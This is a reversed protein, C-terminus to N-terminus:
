ARDAKNLVAGLLPCGSKKLQNAADQVDAPGAAGAEVVLVAGDCLAAAEAGDMSAALSPADLLLWGGSKRHEKLWAALTREKVRQYLEAGGLIEAQEGAEALEEGLRAVVASTGDQKTAGAFLVAAPQKAAFGLNVRLRRFAQDAAKRDKEGRTLPIVSLTEIGLRERLERASRVSDNALYILLIVFVALAGGAIGGLLLRKKSIGGSASAISASDATKAVNLGLLSNIKDAAADRVADAIALAEEADSSTVTITVVRRMYESRTVKVSSLLEKADPADEGYVESLAASATEMVDSSLIMEAIDYALETGADFDNETYGGQFIGLDTGTSRDRAVAYIRTTATYTSASRMKLLGFMGALGLVAALIIVPLKRVLLFFLEGFTVEREGSYRHEENM